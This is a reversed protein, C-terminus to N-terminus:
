APGSSSSSVTWQMAKGDASSKSPVLHVWRELPFNLAFGKCYLDSGRLAKKSSQHLTWTSTCLKQLYGVAPLWKCPSFRDESATAAVIAANAGRVHM